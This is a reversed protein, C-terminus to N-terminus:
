REARLGHHHMASGPFHSGPRRGVSRCVSGTPKRTFAPAKEKVVKMWDITMEAMRHVKAPDNVVVWRIVQRNAGNPAYRAVDM